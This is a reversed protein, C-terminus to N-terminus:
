QTLYGLGTVIHPLIRLMPKLVSDFNKLSDIVRTLELNMNELSNGVAQAVLASAQVGKFANSAMTTQAWQGQKGGLFIGTKGLYEFPSPNRASEIFASSSSASNGTGLASEALPVAIAQNHIATHYMKDYMFKDILTPFMSILPAGGQIMLAPSSYYKHMINSFYKGPGTHRFRTIGALAQNIQGRSAGAHIMMNEFHKTIAGWSHIARGKRNTFFTLYKYYTLLPSEGLFTSSAARINRTELNRFMSGTNASPFIGGLNNRLMIAQSEMQSFLGQGHASSFVGASQDMLSGVVQMLNSGTVNVNMHKMAAFYGALHALGLKYAYAHGGPSAGYFQAFQNRAGFGGIFKSRNLSILLSRMGAPSVGRLGMAGLDSVVEQPMLGATIYQSPHATFSSVPLGTLRSVNSLGGWYQYASHAASYEMNSVKYFVLPAAVAALAATAALGGISAGSAAVSGEVGSDIAEQGAADPVMSRLGYLKRAARGGLFGLIKRAHPSQHKMMQKSIFNGYRLDHGWNRAMKKQLINRVHAGVISFPNKGMATGLLMNEMLGPTSGKATDSTIKDIERQIMRERKQAESETVGAVAAGRTSAVQVSNLLSEASSKTGTKSQETNHSIKTLVELIKSLLADSAGGKTGAAGIGPANALLVRGRMSEAWQNMFGTPFSRNGYTGLLQSGYQTAAIQELAQSQSLTNNKIGQSTRVTYQSLKRHMADLTRQQHFAPPPAGKGAGGMSVINRDAYPFYMRFLQNLTQANGINPSSLFNDWAKMLPSKRSKGGSGGGGQGGGSSSEGDIDLKVTM